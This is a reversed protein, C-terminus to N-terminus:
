TDGTTVRARMVTWADLALSGVLGVIITVGLWTKDYSREGYRAGLAVLLVVMKVLWSAVLGISQVTVPKNRTAWMVIVTSGCFLFTVAAGILGSILGAQGKLAQGGISFGTGVLFAWGLLLGTL